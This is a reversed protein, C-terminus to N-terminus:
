EEEDATKKIGVQLSSWELMRWIGDKGLKMRFPRPLDAGGCKIMFYMVKGGQQATETTFVLEFANPDMTYNNDPTAGKAYSRYLYPQKQLTGRRLMDQEWTEEVNILSLMERGPAKAEDDAAGTYVYMAEFFLHAAKKADTGDAALRTKFEDVDAPLDASAPGVTLVALGALLMFWKRM